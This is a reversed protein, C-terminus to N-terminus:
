AQFGDLVIHNGGHMRLKTRNLIRNGLRPWFILFSGDKPYSRLYGNGKEMRKADQICPMVIRM